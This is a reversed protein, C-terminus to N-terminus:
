SPVTKRGCRACQMTCWEPISEFLPYRCRCILLRARRDAALREDTYEYVTTM